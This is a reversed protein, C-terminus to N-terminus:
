RAGSRSPVSRWHNLVQNVSDSTSTFVPLDDADVTRDTETVGLTRIAEAWWRLAADETAVRIKRGLERDRAREAETIRPQGATEREDGAALLETLFTQLEESAEELTEAEERWLEYLHRYDRMRPTRLRRKVGDVVVHLGGTPRFDVYTEEDDLSSPAATADTM